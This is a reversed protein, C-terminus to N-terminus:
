GLDYDNKKEYGRAVLIDPREHPVDFVSVLDDSKIAEASAVYEVAPGREM